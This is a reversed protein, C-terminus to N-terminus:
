ADMQEYPVEIIAETGKGPESSIEIKCGLLKLRDRIVMLGHALQPDNIVRMSDFGIGRDKIIVILHSDYHEFRVAVDLTGAHKVVNFLLERIAYFVLVRVKEDVTAPMGNAKLDVKLGYQENMQAALWVVAEVLGEGHLIPPSLDVSLQRTVRIAEALWNELQPFDAQFGHLDNKEHADRLFSMHMQVAFLRQQLDDHLIQSLRHRESQEKGTLEAALSRIKQEAQVRETIDIFTTILTNTEDLVLVQLSALITRTEGSALQVQIEINRIRGAKRLQSKMEDAMKEKLGLGFSFETASQGIIEEAELQFYNLFEANAHLFVEDEQRILVTPIPNTDFLEYFILSSM